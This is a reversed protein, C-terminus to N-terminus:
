CFFVVVFPAVSKTILSFKRLLPNYLTVLYSQEKPKYCLQTYEQGDVYVVAYAYIHNATKCYYLLKTETSSVKLCSLDCM